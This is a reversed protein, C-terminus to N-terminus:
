VEFMPRCLQNMMQNLLAHLFALLLAPLKVTHTNKKSKPKRAPKQLDRNFPTATARVQSTSLKRLEPLTTFQISTKCGRIFKL